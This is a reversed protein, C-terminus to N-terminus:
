GRLLRALGALWRLLLALLAAEVTWAFWGVILAWRGWYAQAYLFPETSQLLSPACTRWLIEYANLYEATPGLICDIIVIALMATAWPLFASKIM